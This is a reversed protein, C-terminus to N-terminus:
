VVWSWRDKGEDLAEKMLIKAQKSSVKKVKSEDIEYIKYFNEKEGAQINNPDSYDFAFTETKKGEIDKTEIYWQGQENQKLYGEAENWAHLFIGGEELNAFKTDLFTYCFKWHPNQIINNFAILLCEGKPIELKGDCRKNHQHRKEILEEDTNVQVVEGCKECFYTKM